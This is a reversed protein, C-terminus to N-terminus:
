HFVNEVQDIIHFRVSKVTNSWPKQQQTNIHKNTNESEVNTFIVVLLCLIMCCENMAENRVNPTGFRM